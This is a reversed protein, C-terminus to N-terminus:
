HLYLAQQCTPPVLAWCSHAPSNQWWIRLRVRLKSFSKMLWFSKKFNYRFLTSRSKILSFSPQILISSFPKLAGYSLGKWSPHRRWICGLHCWPGDLPFCAEKSKVYQGEVLFFITGAFFLLVESGSEFLCKVCLWQWLFRWSPNLKIINGCNPSTKGVTYFKEMDMLRLHTRHTKKLFGSIIISMQNSFSILTSSPSHGMRSWAQLLHCFWSKVNGRRIRTELIREVRVM